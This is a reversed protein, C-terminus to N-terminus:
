FPYNPGCYLCFSSGGPTIRGCNDCTQACYPCFLNAEYKTDYYKSCISCYVWGECFSCTTSGPSVLSQSCRPCWVKNGPCSSNSCSSAYTPELCYSCWYIDTTVNGNNATNCFDTFAGYYFSYISPGIISNSLLVSGTTDRFTNNMSLPRATNLNGVILQGYSNRNGLSGQGINSGEFTSVYSDSAPLYLIWEISSKYFCYDLDVFSYNNSNSGSCFCSPGSKIGKCGKFTGRMSKVSLPINYTQMDFYSNIKRANEFTYNLSVTEDPIDPFLMLNNCGAFTQYFYKCSSSMRGEYLSDCNYYARPMWVVSNPIDAGRIESNAWMSDANLASSCDATISPASFGTFRDYTVGSNAFCYSLDIVNEPLSLRWLPQAIDERIEERFSNEDSYYVTAMYERGIINTQIGYFCEKMTLVSDPISFFVFQDKYKNVIDQPGTFDIVYSQFGSNKFTAEMSLVTDPIIIKSNTSSNLEFKNTFNKCNEYTGVMGKLSLQNIKPLVSGFYAKNTNIVKANWGEIEDFKLEFSAPEDLKERPNYETLVYDGNPVSILQYTYKYDEYEFTDGLETKEPYEVTEGDGVLILGTKAVTYVGGKPILKEADPKYEADKDNISKDTSYYEESLTVKNLSVTFWSIGANKILKYSQKTNINLMITGGYQVFKSNNSVYETGDFSYNVKNVNFGESTIFEDIKDGIIEEDTTGKIAAYRVINDAAHSLKQYTIMYSFLNLVVYVIMLSIFVTVVTDIYAEGKKKIKKM